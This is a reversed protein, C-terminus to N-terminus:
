EIIRATIAIEKNDIGNQMFTVSGSQSLNKLGVNTVGSASSLDVFGLIKSMSEDRQRIYGKPGLSIGAETQWQVKVYAGASSNSPICVNATLQYRYGPQLEFGRWFQSTTTFVSIIHSAYTSDNELTMLDLPSSYKTRFNLYFGDASEYAPSYTPTTFYGTATNIGKVSAVTNPVTSANVWGSGDHALVDTNTLSNLSINDINNLGRTVAGDRSFGQGDM